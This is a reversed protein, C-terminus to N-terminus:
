KLKSLITKIDANIIKVNDKIEAIDDALPKNKLDVYMKMAAQKDLMSTRVDALRSDVHTFFLAGIAALGSLSIGVKAKTSAMAAGVATSKKAMLGWLIKLWIPM